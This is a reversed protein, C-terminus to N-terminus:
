LYGLSKAKNIANKTEKFTLRKEISNLPLFTLKSIEQTKPKLKTPDGLYEALFLTTIQGSYKSNKTKPFDFSIKIPLETKICIEQTGLEESLERLIAQVPTENVKIGGKPIDWENVPKAGGLDETLVKNIVCIENPKSKCTIIAGVAQRIPLDIIEKDM